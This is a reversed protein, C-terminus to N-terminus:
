LGTYRMSAITVFYQSERVTRVSATDSTVSVQCHCPAATSLCAYDVVQKLQASFHAKM